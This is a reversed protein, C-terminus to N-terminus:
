IREDGGALLRLRLATDPRYIGDMTRKCDGCDSANIQIREDARSNRGQFASAWWELMPLIAVALVILGMGGLWIMLGRWLNISYPLSDLGTLVTGGTATLGSTAEFYSKAFGLEPFYSLIPLMGFLPLSLWTLVVLLFGDRIQLERKFRRTTLWLAAGTLLTTLLAQLFVNLSADQGLYAAMCPLLMTLGFVIILKGLINVVALLHNM